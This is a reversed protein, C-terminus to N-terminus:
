FATCVNLRSAPERTWVNTLPLFNLIINPVWSYVILNVAALPSQHTSHHIISLFAIKFPVADKVCGLQDTHLQKASVIRPKRNPSLWLRQDEEGAKTLALDASVEVEAEYIQVLKEGGLRGTYM